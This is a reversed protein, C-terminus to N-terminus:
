GQVPINLEKKNEADKKVDDKKKNEADIEVDDEKKIEADIKVDLKSVSIWQTDNGSCFMYQDFADEDFKISWPEKPDSPDGYVSSGQLNDDAAHWKEKPCQRM